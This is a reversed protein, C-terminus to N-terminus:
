CYRSGGSNKIKAMRVPILHFRLTTKIQIKRINIKKKKSRRLWESNRVDLSQGVQIDM